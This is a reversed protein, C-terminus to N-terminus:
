KKRCAYARAWCRVKVGLFIVFKLCGFFIKGSGVYIHFYSFILYGGAGGGQGGGGGSGGGGGGGSGPLTRPAGLSDSLVPMIFIAVFSRSMSLSTM